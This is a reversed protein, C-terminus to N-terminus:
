QHESRYKMLVSLNAYILSLDVSKTSLLIPKMFLIPQSFYILQLLKSLMLNIRNNSMLNHM